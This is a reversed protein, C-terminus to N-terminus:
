VGLLRNFFSAIALKKLNCKALEDRRIDLQQLSTKGKHKEWPTM